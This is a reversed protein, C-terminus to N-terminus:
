FEGTREGGAITSLAQYLNFDIAESLARTSGDGMLFNASGVHATSVDRDDSGIDNPSHGTQFLVMHGHDDTPDTWERVAGSWTTEYNFHVGHAGALRFPGNVREGVMLTGSLGDTVAGLRTSSNRSFMGWRAEQTDDLDPPGFSGVYCGMAYQETPVGMEVFSGGSVPDSPCLYAQLHKMRPATNPGSWLPEDWNFQGFLIAQDVQPLIMAAWGFGSANGPPSPKYVYGSPLLSYIDAYNHLALGIQHLNNKCQTRRAAERAQQVAPLLIAILVGIIAIVVMLEILTFGDKRRM